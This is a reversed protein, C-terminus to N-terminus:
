GTETTEKDSGSETSRSAGHWAGGKVPLSDIRVSNTALDDIEYDTETTSKKSSSKAHTYSHLM